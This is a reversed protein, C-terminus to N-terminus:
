DEISTIIADGWLKELSYFERRDKRFIHVVVNAYDMLIWERNEKGEKRWPSDSTSKYVVEEVSDSIADIQTDSNGSCIVFFDAVANGINRLDILVIDSAKLEKMGEIVADSLIQSKQAEKIVTM